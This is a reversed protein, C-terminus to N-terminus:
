PLATKTITVPNDFSKLHRKPLEKNVTADESLNALAYIFSNVGSLQDPSLGRAVMDALAFSIAVHFTPDNAMLAWKERRSVDNQFQKIPSFSVM